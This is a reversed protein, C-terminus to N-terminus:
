ESEEEPDNKSPAVPIIINGGKSKLHGCYQCEVYKPDSYVRWSHTESAGKSAGCDACHGEHYSASVSTYVWNHPESDVSYECDPCVSSHNDEDISTCVANTLGDHSYECGACAETHVGDVVGTCEYDHYQVKGYTCETCHERHLTDDLIVYELNHNETTEYGCLTCKKTHTSGDSQTYTFIHLTPCDNEAICGCDYVHFRGEEAGAVPTFSHQHEPHCPFYCSCYTNGESDVYNDSHSHDSVFEMTLAGKLTTYGISSFAVHTTITNGESNSTNKWGTHCYLEDEAANYDYIIFTHGKLKDDMATVLVPIGQVVKGIVYEKMDNGVLDIFEIRVQLSSDTIENDFYYELLEAITNITLSFDDWIDINENLGIDMLKMHFYQNKYAEVLEKYYKKSLDEDMSTGTESKKQNIISSPERIIGPSDTISKITSNPLISRNNQEYNLVDPIVTDNWYTDYYSLLMAAATYSCSGIYNYGFNGTLNYFYYSAFNDLFVNKEQVYNTIISDNSKKTIEENTNDLNNSEIIFDSRGVNDSIYYQDNEQAFIYIPVQLFLFFILLMILYRKM